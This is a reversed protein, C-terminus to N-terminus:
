MGPPPVPAWTRWSDEQPGELALQGAVLDACALRVEEDTVQVGLRRQAEDRLEHLDWRVKTMPLFCYVFLTARVNYLHNEYPGTPSAM